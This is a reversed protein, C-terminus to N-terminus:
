PSLPQPTLTATPVSPPAAGRVEPAAPSRPRLSRQHGSPRPKPAAQVNRAPHTVKPLDRERGSGGKGGQKGRFIHVWCTSLLRKKPGQDPSWQNFVKLLVQKHYSLYLILLFQRYKLQCNINVYQPRPMEADLDSLEPLIDFAFGGLLPLSGGRTVNTLLMSNTGGTHQAPERARSKEDVLASSTM